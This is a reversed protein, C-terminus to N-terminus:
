RPTRQFEMMRGQWRQVAAPRQWALTRELHRRWQRLVRGHSSVILALVFDFREPEFFASGAARVALFGPFLLIAIFSTAIAVIRRARSL